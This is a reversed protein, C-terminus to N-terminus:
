KLFTRIDESELGGFLAHERSVLQSIPIILTERSSTPFYCLFWGFGDLGLPVWALGSRALGSCFGLTVQTSGRSSGLCFGASGDRIWGPRDRTSGPRGLFVWTRKCRKKLFSIWFWLSFAKKEDNLFGSAGLLRQPGLIFIKELKLYLLIFGNAM